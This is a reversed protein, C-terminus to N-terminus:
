ESVGETKAESPTKLAEIARTFEERTVYDSAGEQYRQAQREYVDMTPQSNPYASKIFIYKEDRTIMMQSAGASVPQNWAEKEGPIQIIEAHITPQTMTQQPQQQPIQPYGPLVMQPYTIPFGNNYAM